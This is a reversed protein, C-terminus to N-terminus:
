FKDLSEDAIHEQAYKSIAKMFSSKDEVNIFTRHCCQHNEHPKISEFYTQSFCDTLYHIFAPSANVSWDFFGIIM